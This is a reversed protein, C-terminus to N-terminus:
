PQLVSQFLISPSLYLTWRLGLPLVSSVARLVFLSKVRTLTGDECLDQSSECTQDPLRASRRHFSIKDKYNVM